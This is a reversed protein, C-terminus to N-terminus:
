NQQKNKIYYCLLFYVRPASSCGTKLFCVILLLLGSPFRLLILFLFFLSSHRQIGRHTRNGIFFFFHEILATKSIYFNFDGGRGKLGDRWEASSDRVLTRTINPVAINRVYVIRRLVFYYSIITIVYVAIYYYYDITRRRSGTCNYWEIHTHSAYASFKV